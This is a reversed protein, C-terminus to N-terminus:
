VLCDVKPQCDFTIIMTLYLYCISTVGNQNILKFEHFLYYFDLNCKRLSQRKNKNLQIESFEADHHRSKLRDLESELYTLKEKLRKTEENTRTLKDRYENLLRINEKQAELSVIDSSDIFNFSDAFVKEELDLNEQRKCKVDERLKEAAKNLTMKENILEKLKSELTSQDYQNFFSIVFQDIPSSPNDVLVVSSNLPASDFEDGNFDDNSDEDCHAVTKIDCFSRFPKLQLYSLGNKELIGDRQSICHELYLCSDKLKAYDRTLLDHARTKDRLLRRENLYDDELISYEDRINDVEFSYVQRENDLLTNALLIRRYKGDSDDPDDANMEKRKRSLRRSVFRSFVSFGACNILCCFNIIYDLM